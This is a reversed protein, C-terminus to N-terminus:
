TIRRTGLLLFVFVLSLWSVPMRDESVLRCGADTPAPSTEQVSTDITEPALEPAPEPTLEPEPEVEVEPEPGVEPEPMEFCGGIDNNYMFCEYNEPCPPDHPGCRWTCVKGDDDPRPLCWKGAVCWHSTQCGDPGEGPNGVEGSEPWCAGYDPFNDFPWCDFGEPCQTLDEVDCYTSCANGSPFPQCHHGANACSKDSHCREGLGSIGDLFHVYTDCLGSEGCLYRGAYEDEGTQPNDRLTYPCEADEQCRYEGQKPYLYCIALVDDPELTRSKNNGAVHPIMTPPQWYPYPGINHQVGFMHGIEHLAVSRLDTGGSGNVTWTVQLGNFAIDAEMYIGNSDFWPTTVGLVYAGLEWAEDEIWVVDNRGDNERTILRVNYPDEVDGLEEFRLTSCPVDEWLKFAARVESVSEEASLDDSGILQLWYQVLPQPWRAIDSNDM